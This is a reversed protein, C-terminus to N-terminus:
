FCYIYIYIITTHIKKTKYLNTELLFAYVQPFIAVLKIITFKDSNKELTKGKLSFYNEM